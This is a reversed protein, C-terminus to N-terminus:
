DVYRLRAMLNDTIVFKDDTDNARARAFFYLAGSSIDAITCTSNQGSYVTTLGDLNIYEDIPFNLVTLKGTGATPYVKPDANLLIERLIKFRGTNDYRLPDMFECEEAGNQLTRGIITNCTPIAGSPQSDWVVLGRMLNSLIDGSTADPKIDCRIIGKIRVSKLHVKRGVRNYSGTGPAILNLTHMSGNTTVSALVADIALPTDVGKVELALSSRGRSSSSSSSPFGMSPYMSTDHVITKSRSLARAAAATARALARNGERSSADRNKIAKRSPM